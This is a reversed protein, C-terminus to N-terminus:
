NQEQFAIKFNKILREDFEQTSVEIGMESLSTVGYDRIGCPVIGSFYELEPNINIAIGHFTIWKRIRVGLAAIKREDDFPCGLKNERPDIWIGIRDPHAKGVLQYDSLTLIIWLQLKDVFERISKGRENLNLFVYVIRQGPGHYTYQGGRGTHFVPLGFQNFLDEDRSSTGATYMPPHEIFWLMEQKRGELIDTVREEMLLLADPYSVPNLSRVIEVMQNIERCKLLTPQYVIIIKYKSVCSIFM